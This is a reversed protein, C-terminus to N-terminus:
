KIIKITTEINDAIIKFFYLGSPYEEMDVSIVQQDTFNCFELLQSQSNLITLNTQYFNTGLDINLHSQTPNPYVNFNTHQENENIELPQSVNIIFPESEFESIGSGFTMPPVLLATGYTRCTYTGSDALAISQFTFATDTADSIANADKFWQYSLASDQASIYLTISDGLIANYYTSDGFPKQPAFFHFNVSPMADAIRLERADSFDFKNNNDWLTSLSTNGSLNPLESLLNDNIRLQELNLNNNLDPLSTLQNSHCVLDILNTNFNLNPLETLLNNNCVLQQLGINSSLDPLTTLLNNECYLLVMATNSLDPLSILQNGDCALWYLANNTSLNPLSTLQTNSCGLFQLFTNNTLDPLATLANDSCGLYTLLTNPSFDPLSTLLNNNCYLYKLATNSTLDPLNTILNDNCRILQLISNNSFDPLTSIQNNDCTFFELISLNSVSPVSVLLNESCDISTVNIFYEMGTLDAISLNNCDLTGTLTAASDVLLSDGTVDMFTPFDNTLFTRFNLDPVFAKTQAFSNTHNILSLIALFCPFILKSKIM